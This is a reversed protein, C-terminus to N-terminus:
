LILSYLHGLVRFTQRNSAQHKTEANLQTNQHNVLHKLVSIALNQDVCFGSHLFDILCIRYLRRQLRM